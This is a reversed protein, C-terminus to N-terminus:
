PARGYGLLGLLLGLGIPTRGGSSFLGAALLGLLLELRNLDGKAPDPGRPGLANLLDDLRELLVALRAGLGAQKQGRSLPEPKGCGRVTGHGM